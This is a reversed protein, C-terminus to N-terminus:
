VEARDSCLWPSSQEIAAAGPFQPPAAGESGGRVGWEAQGWTDSVSSSQRLCRVQTTATSCSTAAAPACSMAGSASFSPSCATFSSSKAKLALSCTPPQVRGGRAGQQLLPVSDWSHQVAPLAASGPLLTPHSVGCCLAARGQEAGCSARSQLRQPHSVTHPLRPPQLPSLAGGLAEQM